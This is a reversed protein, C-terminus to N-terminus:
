SSIKIGDFSQGLFVLYFLSELMTLSSPFVIQAHPPESPKKSGIYWLYPNFASVFGFYICSSYDSVISWGRNLVTRREFLSIKEEVFISYMAVFDIASLRQRNRHDAWGVKLDSMGYSWWDRIFYKWHWFDALTWCAEVMNGQLSVVQSFSFRVKNHDWWPFTPNGMVILDTAWSGAKLMHQIDMWDFLDFHLAWDKALVKCPNM